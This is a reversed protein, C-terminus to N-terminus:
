QWTQGMKETDQTQYTTSKSANFYQCQVNLPDTCFSLCSIHSHCSHGSCMLTERRGLSIIQKGALMDHLWHNFCRLWEVRGLHPLVHAAPQICREPREREIIEINWDRAVLLLHVLGFLGHLSRLVVKHTRCFSPIMCVGCVSTFCM